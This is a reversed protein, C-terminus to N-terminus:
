KRVKELLNPKPKTLSIIKGYHELDSLELVSEDPQEVCLLEMLGKTLRFESKKVHVKNENFTIPSGGMLFNKGVRRVKLSSSANGRVKKLYEQIMNSNEVKEPSTIDLDETDAEHATSIGTDYENQLTKQKKHIKRKSKSAYKPRGGEEINTLPPTSQEAIKKLPDIMPKLITKTVTDIADENSKILKRKQIIAERALALESLIKAEREVKESKM